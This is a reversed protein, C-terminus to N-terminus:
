KLSCKQPSVSTPSKGASDATPLEGLECLGNGALGSKSFSSIGTLRVAASADAASSNGLLQLLQAYSLSGYPPIVWM